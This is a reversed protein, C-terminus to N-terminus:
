CLSGPLLGDTVGGYDARQWRAIIARCERRQGGETSSADARTHPKARLTFIYVRM